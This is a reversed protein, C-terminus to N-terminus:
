PNGRPDVEDRCTERSRSNCSADFSQSYGLRQPNLNRLRHM